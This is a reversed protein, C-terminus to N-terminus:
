SLVGSAYPNGPAKNMWEQRSMLFDVNVWSQNGRDWRVLAQTFVPNDRWHYGRAMRTRSRVRIVKGWGGWGHVRDGRTIYRRRGKGRDKRESSANM